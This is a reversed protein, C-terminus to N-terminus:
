TSVGMKEILFREMRTDRSDRVYDIVTKNYVDRHEIRAGSDILLQLLGYDAESDNLLKTKAYMLVSTGKAGNYHVDAGHEILWRVLDIRQNFAAVVLPSWGNSNTSNVLDVSRGALAAVQDVDGRECAAFMAQIIKQRARGSRWSDFCTLTRAKEDPVMPLNKYPREIKSTTITGTKYLDIFDQLAPRQLRYLNEAVVEPSETGQIPLERFFIQEGADVRHDIFHATVGMEIDKSIAYYFADLGSTEPLKGPHFNVIGRDFLSIVKSPIIRAGAVLGLSIDHRKVIEAMGEHDGHEIAYYPIGLARCLVDTEIVREPLLTAPYYRRNDEHKLVKKPAAAVVFNVIGNAVLDVIFDRTKRHPFQYAFLLLSGESM